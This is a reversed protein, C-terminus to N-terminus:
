YNIEEIIENKNDGVLITFSCGMENIVKSRDFLDERDLFYAGKTEIFKKKNPLYFDPLGTKIKNEKSSFYTIPVETQYIEKEEDLQKALNFELQSRLFHSNGQWDIHWGQHFKPTEAIFVKGNKLALQLSESLNRGEINFLKLIDYGTRSSKFGYKSNIELTSKEEIHYDNFLQSKIRQYEEVLSKNFDFGVKILNDSKKQYAQSREFKGLETQKDFFYKVVKEKKPKLNFHEKLTSKIKQKTEESVKRTHSCSKCCFRCPTKRIQKDKRWDVFFEKGCNECIM